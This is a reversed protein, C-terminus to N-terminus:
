KEGDDNDKFEQIKCVTLQYKGDSIQQKIVRLEGIIEKKVKPFIEVIYFLLGANKLVEVADDLRYGLVDLNSELNSNNYKM